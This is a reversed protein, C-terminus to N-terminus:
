VAPEPALPLCVTFTAGLGAGRSSAQVAGGHLEVLEKVVVLGLGLGVRKALTQGQFLRDFLNPLTDADIGEGTDAVRIYASDADSSLSVMVQGGAPTFKVANSILNAIIQHLRSADGLVSLPAGLWRRWGLVVEKAEALPRLVLVASEAVKGLDVRDRAIVLRGHLMHSVDLLDAILRAQARANREIAQLGRTVQDPSLRGGRILQVWGLIANLPTRLEHSVTSLFRDKLENAREAAALADQAHELAEARADLAERLRERASEDNGSTEEDSEVNRM